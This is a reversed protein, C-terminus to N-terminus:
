QLFMWVIATTAIVLAALLIANTIDEVWKSLATSKSPTRNEGWAWHDTGDGTIPTWGACYLEPHELLSNYLLIAKAETHVIEFKDFSYTYSWFVVYYHM